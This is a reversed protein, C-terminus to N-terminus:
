EQVIRLVNIKFYPDKVVELKRGRITVVPIDSSHIKKLFGPLIENLTRDKVMTIRIHQSLNRLLDIAEFIISKSMVLTERAAVPDYESVGIYLRVAAM